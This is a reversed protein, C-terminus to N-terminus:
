EAGCNWKDLYYWYQNGSLPVGVYKEIGCTDRENPQVGVYVTDIPRDLGTYVKYRIVECDCLEEQTSVPTQEDDNSCATFLSALLAVALITKRM